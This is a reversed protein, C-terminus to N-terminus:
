LRRVTQEPRITERHGLLYCKIDCLMFQGSWGLVLNRSRVSDGCSVWGRSATADGKVRKSRRVHPTNNLYTDGHSERKFDFLWNNTCNKCKGAAEETEKEFGFCAGVTVNRTTGSGVLDDGPALSDVDDCSMTTRSFVNRAGDVCPKTKARPDDGQVHESGPPM